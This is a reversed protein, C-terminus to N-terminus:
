YDFEWFSCYDCEVGDNYPMQLYQYGFGERWVDITATVKVDAAPEPADNTLDTEV